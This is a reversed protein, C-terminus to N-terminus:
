KKLLIKFFNLKSLSKRKRIQKINTKDVPYKLEKKKKLDSFKLKSKKHKDIFAENVSLLPDIIFKKIAPM